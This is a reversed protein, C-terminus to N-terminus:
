LVKKTSSNDDGVYELIYANHHAFLDQVIKASGIAEMGKSSCEVNKPVARSFSTRKKQVQLM